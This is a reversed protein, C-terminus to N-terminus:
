IFNIIVEYSFQTNKFLNTTDSLNKYAKFNHRYINDEIGLADCNYEKMVDVAQSIQDIIQSSYGKSVAQEMEKGSVGYYRYADNLKYSDEHGFTAEVKVHAHPIQGNFSTSITCKKRLLQCYIQGFNHGNVTLSNLTILGYISLKDTWTYGETQNKDLVAVMKGENFLALTSVSKIETESQQGGQSSSQSSNNKENSFNGKQESGGSKEKDGIVLCPMYSAKSKSASDSLFKILTITPVNNSTSNYEVLESLNNSTAESLNNSKEITEKASCDPSYLLHAGPIIKGSSMLYNLHQIVSEGDMTNGIIVLGCLGLELPKGMKIMIEELANSVSDGKAGITLRKVAGDQGEQPMVATASLYYGDNKKDIGIVTILLKNEIEPLGGTKKPLFALVLTFVAVIVAYIRLRVVRSKMQKQM